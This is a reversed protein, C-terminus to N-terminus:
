ADKSEKNLKIWTEDLKSILRIFKAPDEVKFLRIFSEMESIPIRQISFGVNRANSLLRFADLYFALHHWLKPKSELAPIKKGQRQM